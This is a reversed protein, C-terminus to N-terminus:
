EAYAYELMQGDIVFILPEETQSKTGPKEKSDSLLRTNKNYGKVASTYDKDMTWLLYNEKKTPYMQAWFTDTTIEETLTAIAKNLKYTKVSTIAGKDNTKFTNIYVDNGSKGISPFLPLVNKVEENKPLAFQKNFVLRSNKVEYEAMLDQKLLTDYRGLYFKNDSYAGRVYLNVNSAEDSSSFSRMGLYNLNADFLFLCGFGRQYKVPKNNFVTDGCATISMLACLTDKGMKMGNINRILRGRQAPNLQYNKVSSTFLREPFLQRALQVYDIQLSDLSLNKINEGRMNYQAIVNAGPHFLCITNHIYIAGDHKKPSIFNSKLATKNILFIEFDPKIVKYLDELNDHKLHKFALVNGSDSVCCVSPIGGKESLMYKYTPKNSIFIVSKAYAGFKSRFINKEGELMDEDTVVYVPIEMNSKRIRNLLEDPPTYCVACDSLSLAVIVSKKHISNKLCFDKVPNESAPQPNLHLSAGLLQKEKGSAHNKLVAALLFFLITIQKLIM